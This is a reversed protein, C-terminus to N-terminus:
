FIEQNLKFFFKKKIIEFHKMEIYIIYSAKKDRSILLWTGLRVLVLFFGLCM